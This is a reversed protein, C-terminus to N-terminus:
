FGLEPHNFVYDGGGRTPAASHCVNCGLVVDDQDTAGGRKMVMQNVPDLMFWEWNGNDPNFDGGRKVMGTWTINTKMENDEDWTFVEKLLM